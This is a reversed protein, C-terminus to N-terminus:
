SLPELCTPGYSHCLNWAPLNMTAVCEQMCNWLNCSMQDCKYYLQNSHYFALINQQRIAISLQINYLLNLTSSYTVLPLIYTYIYMDGNRPVGYFKIHLIVHYLLVNQKVVSYEQIVDCECVRCQTWAHMCVFNVKHDIVCGTRTSELIPNCSNHIPWSVCLLAIVITNYAAM